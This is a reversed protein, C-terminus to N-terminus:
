LARTGPYNSVPSTCLVAWWLTGVKRWLLFTLSNFQVPPPLGPALLTYVRPLLLAERYLSLQHSLSEPAQCRCESVRPFRHARKLFAKGCWGARSHLCVTGEGAAPTPKVTIKSPTCSYQIDWPCPFGTLVAPYDPPEESPHPPFLSLTLSYVESAVRRSQNLKWVRLPLFLSLFSLLPM